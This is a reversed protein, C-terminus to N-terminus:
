FWRSEAEAPRKAGTGGSPEALEPFCGPTSPEHLEGPSLKEGAFLADNPHILLPERGQIKNAMSVAGLDHQSHLRTSPQNSILHLPFRGARKAGLWEAPELWVPHGPCDDYGFSEITTSFIEIKGSPTACEVKREKDM